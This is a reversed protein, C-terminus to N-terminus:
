GSKSQQKNANMSMADNKSSAADSGAQVFRLSCEPFLQKLMDILKQDPGAPGIMIVIEKM